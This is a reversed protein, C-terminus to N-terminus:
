RHYLIVKRYDVIDTDKEMNCTECLVQLNNFELEFEPYRSRPKIHDVHPPGSFDGCRMCDRGYTDLVRARLVRWAPTDYFDKVAPTKNRDRGPMPYPQSFKSFDSLWSNFDDSM